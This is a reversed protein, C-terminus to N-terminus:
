DLANDKGGLQLTLNGDSDYGLTAVGSTPISPITLVTEEKARQERTTQGSAEKEEQGSKSEKSIVVTLAGSEFARCEPLGAVVEGSRLFESQVFHVAKHVAVRNCEAVVLEPDTLAEVLGISLVTDFSADEFPLRSYDDVLEVPLGRLTAWTTLLRDKSGGMVDYQSNLLVEIISTDGNLCLISSGELEELVTSMTRIFSADWKNPLFSPRPDKVAGGTTRKPKEGRFLDAVKKTIATRPLGEWARRVLAEEFFSLTGAESAGKAKDELETAYQKGVLKCADAYRFANTIEEGRSRFITQVEEIVARANAPSTTIAIHALMGETYNLIKDKSYYGAFPVFGISCGALDKYEDKLLTAALAQGIESKDLVARYKLFSKEVWMDTVIGVSTDYHAVSIFPMGFEEANDIFSYLMAKTMRTNYSDKRQDSAVGEIEVVGDLRRQARTLSAELIM